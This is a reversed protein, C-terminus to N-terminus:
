RVAMPSIFTGPDTWLSGELWLEHSSVSTAPGGNGAPSATGGGAYTSIIGSTNVKRIVQNGSDTIYINGASDVTVHTPGSLQAAIAPGGDGSYGTAMGCIGQSNGSGAVTTIIGTPDVKRVRNNCADAIYLNGKSDVAVGLPNGLAAGTAQGSDGSFGTDLPTGAYVSLPPYNQAVCYPAFLIVIIIYLFKM